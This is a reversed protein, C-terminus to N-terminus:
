GPFSESNNRYETPTLGTEKKFLRCFYCLNNFGSLGSIENLKYETQLLFEKAHSLRLQNIYRVPSIGYQNVFIRRFYSEKIDCLSSLFDITIDPEVYNNHIYEVAPLILAKTSAPLYSLNREYVMEYIISYLNSMCKFKYGTEKSRFANEASVFLESVKVANKAHHVFPSVAIERDLLFNIAYCDGSIVNEVIYNSGKPLLIIDNKEVTLTTSNDFIYKKEGDINFALGYSPRKNHISEGSGAPVKCALMIQAITYDSDLFNM